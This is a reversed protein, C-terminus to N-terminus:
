SVEINFTQEEIEGGVTRKVKVTYTGPPQPYTMALRPGDGSPGAAVDIGNFDSTTLPMSAKDTGNGGRFEEGTNYLLGNLITETNFNDYGVDGAHPVMARGVTVKLGSAAWTGNTNTLRITRGEISVTFNQDSWNAGNNQSVYWYRTLPVAGNLTRLEQGCDIVMQSGSGELWAKLPRPGFRDISSNYIGALAQGMSYGIRAVGIQGSDGPDRLVPDPNVGSTPHLENGDDGQVIDPFYPALIADPETTAFQVQINRLSVSVASDGSARGARWVPFIVKKAITNNENYLDDLKNFLSRVSANSQWGPTWMVAYLDTRRNAFFALASHFGVNGPSGPPPAAVETGMMSWGGSPYNNTQQSDSNTGNISRVVLRLPGQGGTHWRNIFAVVGHSVDNPAGGGVLQRINVSPQSYSGSTGGERNELDVVVGRAGAVM